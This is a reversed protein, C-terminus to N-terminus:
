FTLKLDAGFIRTGPLENVNNVGPTNGNAGGNSFEPDTWPNSKPVWIFLNRGTLAFTAGKIFKSQKIFQDLRFALNIERLKWFAGSSVFSSMTSSFASGQWFGYNGNVVNVNTNATYVGPSTQIVSNPYIFPQRGASASQYSSGAFTMSGGIGNFVVDGGRYEFLGSLSVFKYSFTPHVSVIYEPTTRGFTTLNSGNQIPYGTTGSVVVHGQGDRVFDTGRLLPFPQGVIAYQNNGLSLQNVGPLLSVVKSENQSFNVEMTFGFHNQAQTLIDGKVQLENGTSQTEGINILTRNYGTAISTGIYVTQNKDRQQYHSYNFYLRNAFLGIEAGVEIERTLEPKLSSSYNDTNAVLGGLSGYPFGPALNFTNYIQYSGININGVQSVSGYVKAFSLIKNDRLAAFADTPIFSLKASPYNFSRQAKALRSDQENRFTAELNLWGKYSINLDAFYAIQRQRFEGEGAQILGGIYNINYLDKILLQNSGTWQQKNFTQYITNGLILETKFDKFFTHHLDIVADGEIRDSGTITGDGYTSYDYVSGLSKGSTFGSPVNGAGWFDAIGYPTFDVEQKTIRDRFNGFNDSIQYSASLWDTPELKLKIQSLIQDRVYNDRAHKLIWYPNIAYADYFNSPNAIDSDPDSYNKINLFAPWQLISSYLDAAGANTVFSGPIGFINNNHLYTNVTTKTYSVSYDASFIGYTRHGRASFADKVNKDDPVITTRHANQASMYFSNKADGQQYSIDNQETYGTQFFEQIPNTKLASYTATIIKGNHTAGLFGAASDLPAGVQVTSGDFRPGYLQNEYPVYQSAGTVPDLYNPEGGFPGFSNQLKPYFAAQELQFSNQYTIVPKGDSTGRKSTILIAGNSAQSGYLAAAGAGKLITVDAIDNPNIAGITQSPVPVGDVVILAGNNGELSRFGRLNVSIQPDVGNDLTFIGLGAVKGTLGQAVNTVNTQTLEKPTITAASYGLEKAQHRIGLSTTVVVEGLQNASSVLVVNITSQNGVAITQTTYGVFSVQISSGPPVSLSYKGASNSVTVVTSNKVKVTAGPIPLGDEKATVTGTITRNQAFVQTVCLM